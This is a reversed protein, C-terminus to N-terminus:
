IHILSLLLVLALVLVLVLVVVVLLVLAVLVVAAAGGAARVVMEADRVEGDVRVRADQYQPPPLAILLLLLLGLRVLCADLVRGIFAAQAQRGRVSGRLHERSSVHARTNHENKQEDRQKTTGLGLARVEVRELGLEEQPLEEVHARERRPAAASRERGWTRERWRRAFVRRQRQGASATPGNM